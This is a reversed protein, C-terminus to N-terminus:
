DDQDDINNNDQTVDGEEYIKSERNDMELGPSSNVSCDNKTIDLNSKKTTQVENFINPTENNKRNLHYIQYFFALIFFIFYFIIDLIAETEKLDYNNFLNDVSLQIFFLGSFVSCPILAFKEPIFITGIGMVLILIPFLIYYLHDKYYQNISSM